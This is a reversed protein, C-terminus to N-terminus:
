EEFLSTGANNLWAMLIGAAVSANLSEPGVGGTVGTHPIPGPIRVKTRIVPLLEPSIGRSENGIVLMGSAPPRIGFVDAGDLTAGYVAHGRPMQRILDALGTYSVQVRLFSGMTAQIVKPSFVDATDPSCFIRRIGFWDATRVITGLNGPDQIGDLLLIREGTLDAQSWSYQPTAVVALVMNPTTLGSIRKLEAPSVIYTELEAPLIRRHRNMWDEVACICELRITTDPANALSAGILEGVIKEGEAVFVGHQRRFKKQQLSRIYKIRSAPIM